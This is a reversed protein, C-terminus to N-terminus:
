RLLAAARGQEAELAARDTRYQASRLAQETVTEGHSVRFSV